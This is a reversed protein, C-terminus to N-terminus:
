VHPVLILYLHLIHKWIGVPTLIQSAGELIDYIDVHLSLTVTKDEQARKILLILTNTEEKNFANQLSFNVVDFDLRSRFPHWPEKSIVVWIRDKVQCGYDEFYLTSSCAVGKLALAEM